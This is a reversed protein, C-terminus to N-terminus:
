KESSELPLRGDGRMCSNARIVTLMIKELNAISERLSKSLFELNFIKMIMKM